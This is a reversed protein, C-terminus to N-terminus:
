LRVWTLPDSPTLSLPGHHHFVEGDIIFPGTFDLSACGLTRSEYGPEAALGPHGRLLAPAHRLLHPATSDVWTLRLQGPHDDGWYPTSGFLLRDLTTALLGYLSRPQGDLDVSLSASARTLGTIMAGVSRLQNTFAGPKRQEAWRQVVQAIVGVGFFFGHEVRDPSAARVMPRTFTEPQGNEICRALSAVTARRGRSRNLDRANMNTTGFPLIAVPPLEGAPVADLLRSLTIQM